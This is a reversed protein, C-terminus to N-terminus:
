QPKAIGAGKSRAPSGAAPLRGVMLELPAAAFYAVGSLVTIGAAVWMLQRALPFQILTAVVAVIQALTKAKGWGSAPIVVGEAAAVLRLGTVAFERGIILVAVGAGVQRLQVLSVLAASILLKDALPDLLAGLRTVENRRRALYGDLGDTAAALTFVLAGAYGGYPLNLLLVTMFLPVLFIRGLTLLTALTM